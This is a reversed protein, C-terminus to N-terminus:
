DIKPALFYQINSHDSIFYKVVLPANDILCITVRTSLSCGKSFKELYKLAFSHSVESKIIIEVPNEEKSSQNLIMQGNGTDGDIDFTITAIPTSKTSITVTDGLSLFDKCLKSFEISNLTVASSPEIVPLDFRDATIEMLGLKFNFQRDGGKSVFKLVLEDSNSSQITVSDENNCCKLIKNLSTVNVGMTMQQRCSFSAFDQAGLVVSILSVHSSDMAQITIGNEDCDFNAENIIEKVSEALKKLIGVETLVASLM